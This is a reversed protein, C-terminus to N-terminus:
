LIEDDPDELDEDAPDIPGTGDNDTIGTPLMPKVVQRVAEVAAGPFTDLVAKVLPHDAANAVAKANEGARVEAITPAGEARSLAVSWSMGSHEELFSRLRQVNERAADAGANFEIHGPEFRVIRIQNEIFAQLIGERLEAALAAVANLDKFVRMEAKPAADAEPSPAPSTAPSQALAQGGGNQTHAKM